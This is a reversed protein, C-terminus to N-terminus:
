CLSWPAEKNAQIKLWSTLNGHDAELWFELENSPSKSWGSVSKSAMVKVEWPDCVGIRLSIDWSYIMKRRKSICTWSYIKTQEHHDRPCTNINPYTMIFYLSEIMTKNWLKSYKRELTVRKFNHIFNYSQIEPLRWRLENGPSSLLCTICFGVYKFM